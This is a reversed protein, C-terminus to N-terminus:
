RTKSRSAWFGNSAPTTTPAPAAPCGTANGLSTQTPGGRAPSGFSAVVVPRRGRLLRIEEYYRPPQHFGASGLLLHISFSPVVVISSRTALLSACSFSRDRRRRPKVARLNRNLERQVESIDIWLAPHTARVDPETLPGSYYDKAGVRRTGPMPVPNSTFTRRPALHYCGRAPPLQVCDRGDHSALAPASLGHPSSARPSGCCRVHTFGQALRAPRTLTDEFAVGLIWELGSHYHPRSRRSM